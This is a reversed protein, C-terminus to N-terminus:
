RIGLSSADITGKDANLGVLKLRKLPPKDDDRRLRHLARLRFQRLEEFCQRSFSSPLAGAAVRTLYEYLLPRLAVTTLTEKRVVVAIEPRQQPGTPTLTVYPGYKDIMAALPEVDIVRGPSGHASSASVALFVQDTDDAMLGTFARNLGRVIDPEREQLEFDDPDARLADVLRLYRGGAQYITLAWPEFGDRPNGDERAPLTFFLRRRQSELARHFAALGTEDLQGRRYAERPAAFAADGHIPDDALGDPAPHVAPDLLHTDVANTTEYGLGFAEVIAFARHSARDVPRLNLGVANDYPDVLHQEGDRARKRARRCTLLGRHNPQADGLLVNVVLLILQRIPLHADNAAAIRILDKLRHRLTLPDDARLRELNLRIPCPRDANDFAECGRCASWGDHEVVADLLNEFFTEHSSRSMNHLELTLEPDSVREDRLMTRLRDYIDRYDSRAPEAALLDRWFKLLQGDNSCVVYTTDGGGHLADAFGTAFAAKEDRTLESLDKVFILRRGHHRLEVQKVLAGWRSPTPGRLTDYIKRAVFTKGDGATGTLVISREPHAELHGILEEILPQEIELPAVGYTEAARMVIEDYMNSGAASPGYAALLSVLPNDVM